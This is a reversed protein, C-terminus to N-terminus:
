SSIWNSLSCCLVCLHRHGAVRRALTRLLDGAPLVDGEHGDEDARPGGHDQEEQEFDEGEGRLVDDGDGAHYDAVGHCDGSDGHLLELLVDLGM